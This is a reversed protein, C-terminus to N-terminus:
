QECEVKQLREVVDVEWDNLRKSFYAVWCGGWSPRWIDACLRKPIPKLFYLLSLLGQLENGYWIDLRFKGEDM